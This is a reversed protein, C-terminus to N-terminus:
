DDDLNVEPLPWDEYVVAEDPAMMHVLGQAIWNNREAAAPCHYMWEGDDDRWRKWGFVPTDVAVIGCHACSIVPGVGTAIINVHTITEDTM